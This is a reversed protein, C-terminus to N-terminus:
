MAELKAFLPGIMRKIVYESAYVADGGSAVVHELNLADSM